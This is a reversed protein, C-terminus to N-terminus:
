EGRYHEFTNLLM